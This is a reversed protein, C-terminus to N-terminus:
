LKCGMLVLERMFDGISDCGSTQYAASVAALEGDSYRQMLRHRRSDPKSSGVPRGAGPRTGGRHPPTSDYQTAITM